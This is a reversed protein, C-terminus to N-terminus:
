PRRGVSSLSALGDNNTLNLPVRRFIPRGHEDQLYVPQGDEIVSALVEARPQPLIVVRDAAMLPPDADADPEGGAWDAAQEALAEANAEAVTRGAAAEMAALRELLGTDPAYRGRPLDPPLDGVEGILFGSLLSEVAARVADSDGAAM